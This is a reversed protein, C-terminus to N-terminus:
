KKAKMRESAQKMQALSEENDLLPYVETDLFTYLPLSLMLSNLEAASEVDFIVVGGKLGAKTYGELVKGKKKLELLMEIQQRALEMSQAPEPPLERVETLVLFKLSFEGGGCGICYITSFVSNIFVEL